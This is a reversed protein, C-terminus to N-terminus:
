AAMRQPEREEFLNVTQLINGDADYFQLIGVEVLWMAMFGDVRYSRARYRGDDLLVTENLKALAPPPSGLRSLIHTVLQRIEGPQPVVRM